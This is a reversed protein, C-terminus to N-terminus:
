SAATLLSSRHTLVYEMVRERSRNDVIYASVVGKERNNQSDIVNFAIRYAHYLALIKKPSLDTFEKFERQFRRPKVGMISSWEDVSLPNKNFVIDMAEAALGAVTRSLLKRKITWEQLAHMLTVPNSISCIAVPPEDATDLNQSECSNLSDPSPEGYPKWSAESVACCRATSLNKISWSNTMSITPLWVPVNRLIARYEPAFLCQEDIIAVHWSQVQGLLEEM